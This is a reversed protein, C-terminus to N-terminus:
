PLLSCADKSLCRRTPTAAAANDGHGGSGGQPRDSRCLRLSTCASPRCGRRRCSAPGGSRRPAPRRPAPRRRELRLEGGPRRLRHDGLELLRHGGLRVADLDHAMGACDREVIEDLLGDVLADDDGVAVRRQRGQLVLEAGLAEAVGADIEIRAARQGGARHDRLAQLRAVLRRDPADEALGLAANRLLAEGVRKLLGAELDVPEVDRLVDVAVGREANRLEGGVNLRMRIQLRDAQLM